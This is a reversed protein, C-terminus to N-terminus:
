MGMLIYINLFVWCKFPIFIIIHVSLAHNFTPQSSLQTMYLLLIDYPWIKNCPLKVKTLQCSTHVCQVIRTSNPPAVHRTYMTM